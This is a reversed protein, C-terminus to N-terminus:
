DPCMGDLYSVGVSPHRDEEKEARHFWIEYAGTSEAFCVWVTGHWSSAHRRSTRTRLLTDLDEAPPTGAMVGYAWPILPFTPLAAVLWRLLKTCPSGVLVAVGRDADSDRVRRNTHVKTHVRRCRAVLPIHM